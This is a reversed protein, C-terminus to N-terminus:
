QSNKYEEYIEYGIRGTAYIISVGAGVPGGWVGVAGMITDLTAWGVSNASGGNGRRAPYLSNACQRQSKYDWCVTNDPNEIRFM